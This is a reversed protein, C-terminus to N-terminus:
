AGSPGRSQWLAESVGDRRRRQREMFEKGYELEALYQNHQRCVLRINRVSHHGGRAYPTGAHHFELRHRETCRNGRADVFTCQGGDREYVARRVAAPIYRSSPPGVDKTPAKRPAKRPAGLASRTESQPADSEILAAARIPQPRRSLAKTKGFRRAELRDLKETVAAEIVAALDADPISTRMLAQLRQLKERLEASATFQVKWRAMGLPKVM